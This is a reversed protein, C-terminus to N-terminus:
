RPLREAAPSSAAPDADFSYPGTGGVATCWATVCSFAGPDLWTARLEPRVDGRVVWTQGDWGALAPEPPALLSTLPDDGLNAFATCRDRATCSIATLWTGAPAPRHTWTSGDLHLAGGATGVVVCSGDPACTVDRPTGVPSVIAPDVATAQQRDWVVVGAGIGVCRATSACSIRESMGLEPGAGAVERWSLGDGRREGVAVGGTGPIPEGGPTLRRGTAAVCGDGGCAVGPVPGLRTLVPDQQRGWAHGDWRYVFGVLDQGLLDWGYGTGLCLTPTLCSVSRLQPRGGDYALPDTHDPHVSLQWATGDGAATITRPRDFPWASGVALCYRQGAGTPTTTDICSVDTLRSVPPGSLAPVGENVRVETGWSLLRGSGVAVCRDGTACAVASAIVSRAAGGAPVPVPTWGAATLRALLLEGTTGPPDVLGAAVCESSSPCDIATLGTAGAPGDTISWGADTRTLVPVPDASGARREGVARCRGVAACSVATLSSLVAAGGLDEPTWSTGDWREAYGFPRGPVSRDTGGALCWTPDACSIRSTNGPGVPSTIDTWTLGNWLLTVPDPDLLSSDPQEAPTVVGRALCFQPSSCSVHRPTVGAAIPVPLWTRGDGVFAGLPMHGEYAIAMCWTASVCSVDAQRGWPLLPVFPIEFPSTRPEAYWPPRTITWRAGDWRASTNGVAVCEGTPACSTATYRGYSVPTPLAPDPVGGSPVTPGPATCSASILALAVGVIVLAARARSWPAVRPGSTRVVM